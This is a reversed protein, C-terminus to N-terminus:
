QAQGEPWAAPGSIPGCNCFVAPTAQGEATVGDEVWGLVQELKHRYSSSGPISGPVNPTVLLNEVVSGSGGQSSFKQM